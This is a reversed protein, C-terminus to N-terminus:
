DPYVFGHQVIRWRSGHPTLVLNLVFGPHIFEIIDQPLVVDVRTDYDTLQPSLRLCDECVEDVRWYGDLLDPADPDPQGRAPSNAYPDKCLIDAAPMGSHRGISEWLLDYAKIADPLRKRYFQYVVYYKEYLPAACKEDCWRLFVRLASLLEEATSRSVLVNSICFHVLLDRYDDETFDSLQRIAPHSEVYLEMVGFARRYRARTSESRHVLYEDIFSEIAQEIAPEESNFV